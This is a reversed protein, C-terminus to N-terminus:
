VCLAGSGYYNYAICLIKPCSRAWTHLTNLPFSSRHKSCDQEDSSDQCAAVGDCRQDYVHCGFGNSCPIQNFFCDTGGAVVCTLFYTLLYKLAAYMSNKNFNDFAYAIHIFFLEVEIWSTECLVVMQLFDYM